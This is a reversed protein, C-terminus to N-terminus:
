WILLIAGAQGNQANFLRAAGGSGIPNLGTGSDIPQNGMLPAAGGIAASVDSNIIDGGYGGPLNVDGGVGNGGAGPGATAGAGGTASFLAGFSTTGGTNGNGGGTAGAGGAGVTAGTPTPPCNFSKMSFGGGGGAAGYTGADSAAGGGAGWLLGLIRDHITLGYATPNFTGSATFMVMGRFSVGGRVRSGADILQVRTGDYLGTRVAGQILEGALMPANDGPYVIDKTGPLGTIALNAAGTNTTSVVFRFPTGTLEDWDEPEPDLTATLADASGGITPIFNPRQSRVALLLQYLKAADPSFGCAEILALIEEQQANMHAATVVTGPLGAVTDKSRFGRRGGGIDVATPHIIRDM